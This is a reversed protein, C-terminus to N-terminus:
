FRTSSVLNFQLPVFISRTPWMRFPSFSQQALPSYAVSQFVGSQSSAFPFRVPGAPRPTVLTSGVTPLKPMTPWFSALQLPVVPNGLGGVEPQTTKEVVVVSAAAESPVKADAPITPPQPSKEAGVSAATMEIPKSVLQSSEGPQLPNEAVATPQESADPKIVGSPTAEPRKVFQTIEGLNTLRGMQSIRGHSNIKGGRENVLSGMLSMSADARLTGANNVNGMSSLTGGSEIRGSGFNNLNGTLKLSKDTQVSGANDLTGIISVNRGAVSAGDQIKIRGGSSIAIDGTVADVKGALNVGVGAASGHMTIASAHMSGLKAVDIAVDPLPGSTQSAFQHSGAQEIEATGSLAAATVKRAHLKANLVLSRSVLDLQDVDRADLGAGDISIRGNETRFQRILGKDDFETTGAVLSVRNTNIFTGGDVGIGNPNAVIVRANQGAVETAGALMSANIGTVQNLIVSAPAGVLAANGIVRGALQTDVASASNNLVLGARNVNYETFQNHSIGTSDPAVINVIPTGNAAVALEPRNAASPDVVLPAVQAHAVQTALLPIACALATILAHRAIPRTPHLHAQTTHLM